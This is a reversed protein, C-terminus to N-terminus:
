PRITGTVFKIDEQKMQEIPVMAMGCKPCPGAGSQMAYPHMPCVYLDSLHPKEESADPKQPLYEEPNAQFAHDCQASCFLYTKGQYVYRYPTEKSVTMGCVPDTTM